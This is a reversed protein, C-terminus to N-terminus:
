VTVRIVGHNIWGECGEHVHGSGVGPAPWSGVNGLTHQGGSFDVPGAHKVGPFKVQDEQLSKIKHLISVTHPVQM